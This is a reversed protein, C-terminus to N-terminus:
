IVKKNLSKRKSEGGEREGQREVAVAQGRLEKREPKM